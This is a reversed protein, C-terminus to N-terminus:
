RQWLILPLEIPVSAFRHHPVVRVTYDQMPRQAHVQARYRYGRMDGKLLAARQMPVTAPQEARGPDSYLEVAVMDPDIDGVYVDTSLLWNDGRREAELAGLRIGGWQLRLDSEWLRLTRAVEGGNASREAYATGAPLYCQEVYDCLMRSSSFQPALTAMSARIRGVWDRPVGASDRAYFGPVVEEELLAYLQRAEVADWEPEDHERGDGLAWGVEANFAEAWWGDLESLNLGGNVLVKMGSTGCAEWPRRPTNIWVDVGQVLEQALTIDYDELFVAHARIDPRQVFEAWIRVFEKGQRDNPHAKGAVILQVPREADNLLRALRAQDQLLLTPRKYETFRRAFGLTLANPDLVSHASAIKEEAVGRHGLQRVLRERAYRVLDAREQSRQQWLAEDSLAAITEAHKDV